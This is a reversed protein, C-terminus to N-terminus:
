PENPPETWDVFEEDDRYRLISWSGGCGFCTASSWDLVTIEGCEPCRGAHTGCSDCLGHELARKSEYGVDTTWSIEGWCNENPCDVKSFFEEDVDRGAEFDTLDRLEIRPNVAGSARARAGADFGGFAWLIGKEAGIDQLKGAFADVVGIKLPKSANRKCEVVVQIESGAISGTVLVDVQRARRSVRGELKVNHEVVVDDFHSAIHGQVDEEFMLWLPSGVVVDNPTAEESDDAPELPETVRAVIGSCM